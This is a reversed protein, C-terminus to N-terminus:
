TRRGLLRRWGRVPPEPEPEPIDPGIDVVLASLDRQPKSRVHKGNTLQARIYFYRPNKGEHRLYSPRVDAAVKLGSLAEIVKPEPFWEGGRLKKERDWWRWWPAYVPIIWIREVGMATLGRNALRIRILYMREQRPKPNIPSMGHDEILVRVKPRVRRYTLYALTVNSLAGVASAGSVWLAANVRDPDMM